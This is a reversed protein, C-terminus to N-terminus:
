LERYTLTRRDGPEGEFVIAAKNARWSGLHRDLCNVSANLKGDDFWKAFPPDWDLVKTFPVDWTLERARDAWYALRAEEGVPWASRDRVQARAAFEKPPPFRRNERLLDSIHPTTMPPMRPRRPVTAGACRRIGRM